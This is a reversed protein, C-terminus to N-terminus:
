RGSEGYGDFWMSLKYLMPVIVAFGVGLAVAVPRGAAWSMAGLRVGAAYALPGGIAGFLVAAAMRQKLWRTSLNLTTAFSIWLAVMWLPLLWGPLPSPPYAIWGMSLLAQDFACGLLTSVLILSLEAPANKAARLHLVVLPGVVIPGLWWMGHAAGVVAAFWVLQYSLFNLIVIRRSNM